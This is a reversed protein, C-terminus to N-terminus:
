GAFVFSFSTLFTSSMKKNEIDCLLLNRNFFVFLVVVKETVIVKKEATSASLYCVAYSQATHDQSFFFAKQFARLFHARQFAFLSSSLLHNM